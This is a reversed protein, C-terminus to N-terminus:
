AAVRTKLTIETVFNSDITGTRFVVGITGLNITNSGDAAAEFGGIVGAPFASNLAIRLYVPQQSVPTGVLCAVAVSGRERVEAMSGPYYSGTLGPTQTQLLATYVVNTKVERHAVGAFLAATMTGGGAIFDAVSQYTGGTSDPVIVCSSGFNIPNPTTALVQRAAIINDGLRSGAGLFGNYLGTVPITSGFPM